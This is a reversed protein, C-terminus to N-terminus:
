KEILINIERRVKNNKKERKKRMDHYLLADLCV